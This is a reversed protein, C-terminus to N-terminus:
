TMRAYDRAASSCEQIFMHFLHMAKSYMCMCAKQCWRNRSTDFCTVGSMAGRSCAGVLPDPNAAVGTTAAGSPAGQTPAPALYASLLLVPCFLQSTCGPLLM